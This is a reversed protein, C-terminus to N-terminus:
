LAEAATLKWRIRGGDSTPTQSRLVVQTTRRPQGNEYHVSPEISVDAADNRLWWGHTTPGQLLVSRRDRALSARVDPHLHFRVAVPAVRRPGAASSSPVLREEGRLEDAALDLYLMREHKLGWVPSWGDHSMELWAGQPSDHRRSTVHAPGGKLRAGLLRGLRGSVPQGASADGVSVTSAAATLRLAQPEDTKVSWACSTVLRDGGSFIEIALPQACATESWAGHAPLGADAIVTLNRASVRQYGGYPLAATPSSADLDTAARAAAIDAANGAEGGQFAPLRGDPMVLVRLAASLRDIARGMEDPGARGRQSLGDDLMLLDLLLELGAEPSRSAHGGDPLVTTPLADGLRALATVILQTGAEGGLACGALAAACAREAVRSPGAKIMLLQRGHRALTDTLQAREADSALGAVARLGSSLHVTRRELIAAGWSFSNWRGFVRRWDLVLRLAERAGPDGVALLGPLWDFRHLAVAFQRSPSPKDFPDGGAGLTMEYGGLRWVGALVADGSTRSRRRLDNPAAAVGDPKPGRLTLLHFPSGFWEAQAQAQLLRATDDLWAVARTSFDAQPPASGLRQASSM